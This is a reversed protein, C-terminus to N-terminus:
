RRGGSGFGPGGACRGGGKGMGAVGAQVKTRQEPTLLNLMEFRHATRKEQMQDRLSSIEKQTATIKGRDPSKQLWLQKLEGRMGMMKERLPQVDKLHAARMDRMKTAQEDTLGLDPIGKFDREYYPCTECDGRAFGRGPGGGWGYAFTTAAIFTAVVVAFFVISMRKM